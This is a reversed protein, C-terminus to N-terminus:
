MTAPDVVRPLNACPGRRAAAYRDREAQALGQRKARSTAPPSLGSLVVWVDSWIARVVSDSAWLARTPIFSRMIVLQFRAAATPPWSRATKKIWDSFIEKIGHSNAQVWESSSPLGFARDDIGMRNLIAEPSDCAEEYVRDGSFNKMVASSFSFVYADQLGNGWLLGTGNDRWVEIYRNNESDLRRSVLDWSWGSKTIKTNEWRILKACNGLRQAVTPQPLQNLTLLVPRLIDDTGCAMVLASSPRGGDFVAVVSVVLAAVVISTSVSTKSSLKGSSV